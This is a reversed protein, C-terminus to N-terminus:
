LDNSYVGFTISLTSPDAILNDDQKSHPKFNNFDITSPSQQFYSCSPCQLSFHLLSQFNIVIIECRIM